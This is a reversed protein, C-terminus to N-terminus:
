PIFATSIKFVGNIMAGRITITHGDITRVLPNAKGYIGDPAGQVAEILKTMAAERSGAGQLFGNLKHKDVFVHDLKQPTLAYNKSDQLKQDPISPKGPEAKDAKKLNKIRELVSQSKKLDKSAKVGGELKKAAKWARIAASIATAAKKVSHAGKAVAAGAALGVTFVAGIAAFALTMAVEEALINLIGKITDRLEGVAARHERCSQALEGCAHRLDEAATHLEQLDEIVFEVETSKAAAFRGPQKALLAVNNVMVDDTAMAHWVKGALDLRDPNGDPVPLEILELLGMGVNDALGQGPGGASPPSLLSRAEFQPPASPPADNDPNADALAHMYGVKGLIESYTALAAILNKATAITDVARADYSTAWARGSDYSGAMEGCESLGGIALTFYADFAAAVNLCDRSADYFVQPDINIEDSM